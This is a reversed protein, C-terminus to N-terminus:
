HFPLGKTRHLSSAGASLFALATLCSHTIPQLLVKMFAPTLIPTQPPSVLFPPCCKFHLHIFYGIFFM